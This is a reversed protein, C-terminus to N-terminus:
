GGLIRAMIPDGAVWAYGSYALIVLKVGWFLISLGAAMNWVIELLVLAVIPVIAAKLVDCCEIGM